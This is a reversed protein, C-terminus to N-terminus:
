ESTCNFCYAYLCVIIRIRRREAITAVADANVEDDVVVAIVTPWCDDDVVSRWLVVRGEGVRASTLIESSISDLGMNMGGDVPIGPLREGSSNIAMALFKRAPDFPSPPSGERRAESKLNSPGTTPGNVFSANTLAIPLTSKAV